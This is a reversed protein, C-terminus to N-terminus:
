LQVEWHGREQKEERQWMPKEPVWGPPPKPLEIQVREERKERERREREMEEIMWPEMRREGKM